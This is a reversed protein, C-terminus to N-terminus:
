LFNRLDNNISLAHCACNSPCIATFMSTQFPQDFLYIIFASSFSWHDLSAIYIYCLKPISWQVYPIRYFILVVTAIMSMLSNRIERQKELSRSKQLTYTKEHRTFPHTANSTRQTYLAAVLAELCTSQDGQVCVSVWM